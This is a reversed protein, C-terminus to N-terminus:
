QCIPPKPPRRPTGGGGPTSPGNNVVVHLMQFIALLDVYLAYGPLSKNAVVGHPYTMTYGYTQRLELNVDAEMCIAASNGDGTDDVLYGGYDTLAQKIKAGIPTRMHLASANASPLALLAGPALSPMTGSYCGHPAGSSCSDSGTAPWVYQQRGGNFETSPQLPHMGFYWQHQLELKLAHTIPESRTLEGLRITGGIGSLGSGGHAGLAGDGFVNAPNM